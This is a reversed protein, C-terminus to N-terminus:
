SLGNGFITDLQQDSQQGFIPPTGPGFVQPTGGSPQRNRFIDFLDGVGQRLSTNINGFTSARADGSLLASQASSIGANGLASAGIGVSSQNIQSAPLGFGALAFLDGVAKDVRQSTLGRNFELLSELERGSNRLGRSNAIRSLAREGRETEFALQPTDILDAFSFDDQPAATQGEDLTVVDPLTGLDNVGSNGLGRIRRDATVQVTNNKDNTLGSVIGGNEPVNAILAGTQTVFADKVPDYFVDNREDSGGSVSTKATVRNIRTLENGSGPTRQISPRVTPLDFLQNLRNLANQSTELFPRIQEQGQEVLGLQDRVTDRSVAGARSAAEEQANGARIGLFVNGATQLLSGAVASAVM